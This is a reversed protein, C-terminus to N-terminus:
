FKLERLQNNNDNNNKGRITCTLKTHHIISEFIYTNFINPKFKIYFELAGNFNIFSLYFKTLSYLLVAIRLIFSVHLSDEVKECSTEGVGRPIRNSFSFM